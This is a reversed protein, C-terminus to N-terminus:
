QTCGDRRANRHEANAPAELFHVHREAAAQVLLHMLQRAHEIVALGVTRVQGHLVGRGM